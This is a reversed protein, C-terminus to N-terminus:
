CGTTGSDSQHICITSFASSTGSTSTVLKISNVELASTQTILFKAYDGTHDIDVNHGAFGSSTLDFENYNGNVTLNSVYNDSNTVSNFINYDGTIDWNFNANDAVASDGVGIVFENNSGTVNFIYQGSDASNLGQPNISFLMDNNDGTFNLVAMISDSYIEGQLINNSGIQNIEIEQQLGNLIFAASNDLDGIVNNQGIQNIDLKLNQGTQQVFIQSDASQAYTVTSLLTLALLLLTKKM